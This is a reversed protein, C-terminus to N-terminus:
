VCRGHACCSVALLIADDFWFPPFHRMTRGSGVADDVAHRASMSFVTRDNGSRPKGKADSPRSFCASRDASPQASGRPSKPYEACLVHFSRYKYKSAASMDLGSFVSAVLANLIYPRSPAGPHLQVCMRPSATTMRRSGGVKTGNPHRADAPTVLSSAGNSGTMVTRSIASVSSNKRSELRLACAIAETFVVVAAGVRVVATVFM